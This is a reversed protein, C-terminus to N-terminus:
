PSLDPESVAIGAAQLLMQEAEDRAAEALVRTIGPRRAFREFRTKANNFATEFAHAQEQLSFHLAFKEAVTGGSSWDDCDWEWTSAEDDHRHLVCKPSATVISANAITKYTRDQWMVFRAARTLKNTLLM